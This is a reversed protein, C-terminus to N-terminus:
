KGGHQDDYCRGCLSICEKLFVTAKNACVICDVLKAVPQVHQPVVNEVNRNIAEETAVALAHDAQEQLVKLHYICEPCYKKSVGTLENTYSTLNAIKSCEPCQNKIVKLPGKKVDKPTTHKDSFLAGIRAANGPAINYKADNPNM